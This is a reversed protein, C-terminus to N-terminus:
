EERHRRLLRHLHTRAIGSERAARSVNGGHLEVIAEAYAREFRDLAIRRADQYPLRPDVDVPAERAGLDSPAVYEDLVACREVHNRLERVNGPWAGSRLSAVFDPSALRERAADPLGLRRVIEKVIAPLDEPRSRLPPIGLRLVALRYYLDERFRGAAVERRLDRHTAAVIRVDFPITELGGLRRVEREELARLLKPQLDIPLEGIEDLFLTGGHAEEFAGRRRKTAGTFAGAEHGFLASELLTGPVSACDFVVFPAEARASAEHIAEAVESKGTGTEGELLVTADSPASLELQAFLARMAISRGVIPGFRENTSLAVRNREREVDFRMSVNGVRVVSGSRLFADVVRVGDVETGNRSGLDRIRPGNEDIAIEAHFRSVTPAAIVLENSPHSGIACRAAVSRFSLGQEAGGVVTVVFRRVALVDGTIATSVATWADLESM